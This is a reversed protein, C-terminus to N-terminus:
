AKDECRVLLLGEWCCPRSASLCASATDSTMETFMITSTVVAQM